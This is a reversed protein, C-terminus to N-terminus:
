LLFIHPLMSDLYEAKKQFKKKYVLEEHFRTDSENQAMFLGNM